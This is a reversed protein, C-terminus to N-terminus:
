MLSSTPYTMVSKGGKIQRKQRHEDGYEVSIGYMIKEQNKKILDGVLRVQVNPSQYYYALTSFKSIGNFM